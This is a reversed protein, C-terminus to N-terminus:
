LATIEFSVSEESDTAPSRIASCSKSKPRVRSQSVHLPSKDSSTDSPCSTPECTLLTGKTAGMLQTETRKPDRSSHPLPELISTSASDFIYPDQHKWFATDQVHQCGGVRYSLLEQGEFTIGSLCHLDKKAFCFTRKTQLHALLEFQLDAYVTNSESETWGVLRWITATGRPNLRRKTFMSTSKDPLQFHLCARRGLSCNLFLTGRHFNLTNDPSSLRLLCSVAQQRVEILCDNILDRIDSSLRLDTRLLWRVTLALFRDVRFGNALEAIPVKAFPSGTASILDQSVAYNRIAISPVSDREQKIYIPHFLQSYQNSVQISSRFQEDEEMRHHANLLAQHHQDFFKQSDM